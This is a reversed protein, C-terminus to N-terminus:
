RVREFRQARKGTDVEATYVAGRSDVAINHVWHFDGAHRGNRGFAGVRRGSERELIFVQNNSGDALLLYRQSPDESPVLDWVSGSGLTKEEHVIQRVFTGDKRFVQIRNNARDCVFVTGERMVRVCHVPNAFQPSQPNYAAMRDDSPRNGYAGWHRKYAGSTADFVVVRKNQYGDAVYLENAALDVEMHAPRGLQETSNSGLSAGSRGIQLLFRGNEDFKLIQHDTEANGGVWVFGAADVYIGHENAPWQFGAGAGGWWKLLNGARDFVLVPPAPVCCRSRPPTLTAGREDETLTRPRHLVWIRDQRDTAIGAVQGVLWNNPLPKPWYPDVAYRPGDEGSAGEIRRASPNACAAALLAAAVILVLTRTSKM